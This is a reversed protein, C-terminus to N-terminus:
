LYKKKIYDEFYFIGYIKGCNVSIVNDEIEDIIIDRSDTSSIYKTKKSIFYGDYSFNEIFDPYYYSFREIMKDKINNIEEKSINANEIDSYKHSKVIPTLKVDTLTFLNNKIDRPYLSMFDGDMITVADFNINHIKKFLLSLTLEYIYNKKSLEAQNYTCDLLIDCEYNIITNDHECIVTINNKKIYNIFKTNLIIKIDALNEKFYSYVNDSNIVQEDVVIINMYINKFLKNPITNFKFNEYKYIHIYTNYDIISNNSILYYNKNINDIMNGYQETFRIYNNKCLQRTNYDRCYHFGSHLRNQNFFSSNNFIDSEKEILIINYKNKLIMAIHCGYWGAGIIIVTQLKKINDM